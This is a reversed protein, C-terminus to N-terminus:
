SVPTSHAREFNRLYAGMMRDHVATHDRLWAVLFDMLEPLAAEDGSEVRDAYLKARRRATDHQQKHWAYGSYASSRMMREEHTFHGGVFELLNRFIAHVRVPEGGNTIAQNLEVLYSLVKAHEADLEPIFIAHAKAKKMARM